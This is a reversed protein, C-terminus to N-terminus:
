NVWHDDDDRRITKFKRRQYKWRLERYFEGVRWARKLYLYGIIMGGLHAVHSIGSTIALSSLFTIAFLIIALTRAKMPIVFMYLLTREAFIMGYALILGYIAGSAGITVTLDNLDLSFSGLLVVLLGAGIGCVLYYRLFARPGWYRELEGGFMWLILMNILLHWVGYTGHLFMYTLPQWIFGRLIVFEPICGFWGALLGPAILRDTIVQLLWVAGCAILIWKVVPTLPPFALRM